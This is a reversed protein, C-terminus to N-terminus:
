LLSSSDNFNKYPYFLNNDFIQCIRANGVEYTIDSHCWFWKAHIVVDHKSITKQYSKLIALIRSIKSFNSSNIM